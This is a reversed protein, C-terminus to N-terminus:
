CQIHAEDNIIYSSDFYANLQYYQGKWKEERSSVGDRHCYEWDEGTFRKPLSKLYIQDEEGVCGVNVWFSTQM